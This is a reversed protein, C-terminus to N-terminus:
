EIEEDSNIDDWNIDDDDDRNKRSPMLESMIPGGVENMLQSLQAVLENDFEEALDTQLIKYVSTLSLRTEQILSRVEENEHEALENLQSEPNNLLQRAKSINALIEIYYADLVNENIDQIGSSVQIATDYQELEVAYRALAILPQILDVYEMGIDFADQDVNKNAMEELRTKKLKFLEWSKNLAEIAEPNRQQSIRISSLLSYSEPNTNDLNLSFEILESCKSEAEPEMCLDTMWIEIESSISLTIKNIIDTKYEEESKYLDKPYDSLSSELKNKLANIAINISNLGDRGGIIQGLCLFKEEGEKAEPDITCATTFIEYAEQVQNNELYTQGLLSLYPVSEKNTDIQSLLLELAKEPQSTQLLARAQTIIESM